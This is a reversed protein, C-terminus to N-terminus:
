GNCSRGIDTYIYMYIYINVHTPILILPDRDCGEIKGYIYIISCVHTYM